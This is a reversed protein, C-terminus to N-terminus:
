FIWEGTAHKMSENRAASFDDCWPFEVLKVGFAGADRKWSETAGPQTVVVIEDVLDAVSALCPGLTPADKEALMTLSVRATM